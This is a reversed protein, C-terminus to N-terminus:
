LKEKLESLRRVSPYDSEVGLRNYHYVNMGVNLAGKIDYTISDGIMICEEKSYGNIAALFIEPAPKCKYEDAGYVKSFYKLIGVKELRKAQIYGFYNTIAVLEYKSSLYQLTEELDDEVLEACKAVEDLYYDVVELPLKSVVFSNMVNLMNEKTYIEFQNQYNDTAIFIQEIMEDDYKYGIKDFANKIASNFKSEWSILTNDIDFILRTIM